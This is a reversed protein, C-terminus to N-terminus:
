IAGPRLWGFGPLNRVVAFVIVLSCLVWPWLHHKLPMPLPRQRCAKLLWSVFYWLAIPLLGILLANCRLAALWHGHLLQHVARQGGCGPCDWGSWANFACKPFLPVQTPNFRFLLALGVLLLLAALVM